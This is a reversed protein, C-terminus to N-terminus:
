NIIISINQIFFLNLSVFKKKKKFNTVDMNILTSQWM